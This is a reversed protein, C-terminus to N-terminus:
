KKGNKFLKKKIRVNVGKNELSAIVSFSENIKNNELALGKLSKMEIIKEPLVSLLNGSLSLQQLSEMYIIEDPFKELHNNGLHLKKLSKLNGISNPLEAM